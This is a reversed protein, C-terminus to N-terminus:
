HAVYALITPLYDFLYHVTDAGPLTLVTPATYKPHGDDLAVSIFFPRGM